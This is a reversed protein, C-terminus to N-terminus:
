QLSVLVLVLGKSSDLSTMAKGLIAGQAKQHNRVVMAHGPTPSTTLLDGSNVSGYSADTLCWVRGTLAVPHEGDAVSGKQGMMLGTRIGGAGSIVGAVTRDYPRSCVALAGPRSPDISVVMGPLPNGSGSHVDFSESLDSGGTIQLEQTTVRGNGSIDSRLSITTTGAGNRLAFYGGGNAGLESDFDITNTGDADYLSLRSGTTTSEAALIRVTNTGDTDYLRVDGATGTGSGDLRVRTANGAAKVLVLGSDGDDGDLEVGPWISANMHLNMFGGGGTAVSGAILTQNNSEDWTRLVGGGSGNPGLQSHRQAGLYTTFAAGPLDFGFRPQTQNGAIFEISDGPLSDSAIDRYQIGYSPYNQSHGLWVRKENGAANDHGATILPTNGSGFVIRGTPIQLHGSANTTAVATFSGPQVLSQAVKSKVAYPVSVLRVRPTLEPAGNVSVSLWIEASDLAADPVGGATNAGISISFVGGSLPVSDHSETFLLIGLVPATSLRVTLNVPGAIPVGANDTVKGQYSILRPVDAQISSAAVSFVVALLIASFIRHSM